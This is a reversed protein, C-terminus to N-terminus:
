IDNDFDLNWNVSVSATEGAAINNITKTESNLEVGSLRKVIKVEVNQVESAGDNHITASIDFPKKWFEWWSKPSISIDKSEISLDIEETEISLEGWDCTVCWRWGTLLDIHIEVYNDGEIIWEPDVNFTCTSWQNNAGTLYAEPTMLRHGNLYVSDRECQGPVGCIYDVDWVALTLTAATISSIDVDHVNIYFNILHDGGSCPQYWDLEPGTDTRFSQINSSLSTSTMVLPATSSISISSGAPPADEPRDVECCGCSNPDNPDEALAGGELVFVMLLSVIFLYVVSSRKMERREM